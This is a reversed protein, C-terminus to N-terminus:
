VSHVFLFQDQGLRRYRRELSFCEPCGIFYHRQQDPLNCPIGDSYFFKIIERDIGRATFNNATWIQVLTM